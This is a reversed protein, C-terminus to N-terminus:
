QTTYWVSARGACSVAESAGIGYGRRTLLAARQGAGTRRRASAASAAGTNGSSMPRTVTRITSTVEVPM